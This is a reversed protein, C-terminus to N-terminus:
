PERIEGGLRLSCPQEKRQAARFPRVHECGQPSSRAGPGEVGSAAGLRRARPLSGVGRV